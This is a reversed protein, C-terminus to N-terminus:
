TREHGSLLTERHDALPVAHRHARGATRGFLYRDLAAELLEAESGLSRRARSKALAPDSLTLRRRAARRDHRRAAIRHGEPPPRRYLSPAGPGVGRRPM